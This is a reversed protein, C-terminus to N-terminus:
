TNSLAARPPRGHQQGKRSRSHGLLKLAVALGVAGLLLPIGLLPRYAIWAVGITLAGLVAALAGAFATVGFQLLDGLIPVFDAVVAIPAFVLLLGFFLLALGVGRLIWTLTKNGAQAAKFMAPADVAGMQLLEIKSGTSTDFPALTGGVQKAVVSVTAPAVVKYRVRLDGVAPRTPRLGIYYGGEVLRARAALRPDMKLAMKTTVPLDRAGGIRGVLSPPLEIAGLTVKGASITKSEYPMRVPNVHDKEHEFNRSAHHEASWVKEYDYTTVKVKKGGQKKHTTRKTEKWQYMEVERILKIGAASVGFLEDNLTESTTALGTTHILKGQNAPDLRDPKVPVVAGAGEELGKATRVARGENWFLLPLAIVLFLLGTAVGKIASRMRDFWSEETVETFTENDSM